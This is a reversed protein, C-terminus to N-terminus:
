IALHEVFLYFPIVLPFLRVTLSSRNAGGVPRRGEGELRDEHGVLRNERVCPSGRVRIAVHRCLYCQGSIAEVIGGPKRIAAYIAAQGDAADEALMGVSDGPNPRKPLM